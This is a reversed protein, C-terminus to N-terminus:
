KFWEPIDRRTWKAFPKKDNIYYTKYSEITDDCKYENPMALLPKTLGIDEIEPSIKSLWEIHQQTTHIKDYRHTYEKCLELGFKCLWKYNSSSQRLWISCPHNVHCFKYGHKGSKTLPADKIFQDDQFTMWLCTYLLQATELIMKVVHKDCHLEACEKPDFSLFFINM